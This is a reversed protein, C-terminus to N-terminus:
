KNSEGKKASLAKEQKLLYRAQATKMNAARQELVAKEKMNIGPSRLINQLRTWHASCACHM